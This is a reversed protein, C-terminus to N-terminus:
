RRTLEPTFTFAECTHSTFSPINSIRLLSRETDRQAASYDSVFVLSRFTDAYIKTFRTIPSESTSSRSIGVSVDLNHLKPFSGLLDFFYSKDLDFPRTIWSSRLSGSWRSIFPAVTTLTLLVTM